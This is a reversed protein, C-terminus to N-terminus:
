SNRLLPFIAAYIREANKEVSINFTDVILDPNEPVEFPSSVGTFDAIKGMRSKKYLGQVDREECIEVATKVYIEFFNEQGIIKRACQRIENTPSIFACISIIRNHILVKCIEAVRRINEYRDILSFGLDKNIGDRIVNGDLVLSFFGCKTLHEKLTFAISTKGAGSLGTLWVVIAQQALLPDNFYRDDSISTM